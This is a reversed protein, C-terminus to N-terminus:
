CAWGLQECASLLMQFINGEPHSWQQHELMTSQMAEAEHQNNGHRKKYSSLSRADLCEFKTRTFSPLHAKGRLQYIQLQYFPAM